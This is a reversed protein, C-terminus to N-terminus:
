DDGAEPLRRLVVVTVDDTHSAAVREMLRRVMEGADAGPALDRILEAEDVTQDGVEVLGDSHVLVTDGPDMRV